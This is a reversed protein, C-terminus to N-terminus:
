EIIDDYVFRNMQRLVRAIRRMLGLVEPTNDLKPTFMLDSIDPTNIGKDRLSKAVTECRARLAVLINNTIDPCKIVLMKFNNKDVVLAAGDENSIVTANRPWGDILSMEGFFSGQQLAAVQAPYGTLTNVFVNFTGKLVIYMCDGPENEKFVTQGESFSMVDGLRRLLALEAM